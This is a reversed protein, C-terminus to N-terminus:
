RISNHLGRSAGPDVEDHQYQQRRRPVSDLDFDTPPSYFEATGQTRRVLKLLKVTVAPRYAAIGRAGSM